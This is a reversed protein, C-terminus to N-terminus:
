AANKWGMVKWIREKLIEARFPKVLYSSVHWQRAQTIKYKEISQQSTIMIFRTRTRHSQSRLAKLVTLGSAGPMEWDSLVLDLQVDPDQIIKIAKQPDKVEMINTFGFSHLYEVLIARVMADDDVVLIALNKDIESM